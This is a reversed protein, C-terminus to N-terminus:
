DNPSQPSMPQKAKSAPRAPHPRLLHLPLSPFPSPLHTGVYRGPPPPPTQETSPDNLLGPGVPRAKRNPQTRAPGSIRERGRGPGIRARCGGAGAGQLSRQALGAGKERARDFGWRISQLSPAFSSLLVVVVDLPSADRDITAASEVLEQIAADLTCDITGSTRCGLRM